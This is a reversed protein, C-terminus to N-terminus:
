STSKLHGFEAHPVFERRKQVVSDKQVCDRDIFTQVSSQIRFIPQHQRFVHFLPDESTPTIRSGDGGPCFPRWKASSLKLCM